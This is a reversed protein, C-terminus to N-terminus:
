IMGTLFRYIPQCCGLIKTYYRCFLYVSARVLDYGNGFRVLVKGLDSACYVAEAGDHDELVILGFVLEVVDLLAALDLHCVVFLDIKDGRPDRPRPRCFSIRRDKSISISFRILM